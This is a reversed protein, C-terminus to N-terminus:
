RPSPLTVSSPFFQKSFLADFPSTEEHVFVTNDQRGGMALAAACIAGMAAEDELPSKM